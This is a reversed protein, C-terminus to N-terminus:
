EIPFTLSITGRLEGLRYDEMFHGTIDKGDKTPSTSPDGHCKLCSPEIYLPYIYRYVLRYTAGVKQVEGYGVGRPYRIDAFKLMQDKEWDDPVNYKNRPGLKGKGTSVFKILIGTRLTFEKGILTAFGEPNIGKYSYPQDRPIPEGLKANHTNIVDINEAVFNTAVNLMNVIAHSMREYDYIQALSDKLPLFCLSFILVVLVGRRASIKM